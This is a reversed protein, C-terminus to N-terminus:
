WHTHTHSPDADPVLLSDAFQSIMNMYYKCTSTLDENNNMAWGVIRASKTSGLYKAIAGYTTVKGYPIRKVVDYVLDFFKESM